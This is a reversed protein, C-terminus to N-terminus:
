SVGLGLGLRTPISPLCIALAFGLLTPYPLTPKAKSLLGLMGLMGLLGLLGRLGVLGLLGVHSTLSCHM